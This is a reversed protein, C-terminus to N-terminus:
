PQWCNGSGSPCPSRSPWRLYPSAGMSTQRHGPHSSGWSVPVWAELAQFSDGSCGSAARWLHQLLAQPKRIDGKGQGSLRQPIWIAPRQSALVASHVRHEASILRRSEEPVRVGVKRLIGEPDKGTKGGVVVGRGSGEADGWKRM